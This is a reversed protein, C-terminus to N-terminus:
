KSGLRVDFSVKDPITCVSRSLSLWQLQTLGSGDRGVILSSCHTAVYRVVCLNGYLHGLVGCVGGVYEDEGGGEGRAPVNFVIRLSLAYLLGIGCDANAVFFPIHLSSFCRNHADGDVCDLVGIWVASPNGWDGMTYERRREEEQEEREREEGEERQENRGSEFPGM